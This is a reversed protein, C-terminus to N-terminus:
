PMLSLKGEVETIYEAEVAHSRMARLCGSYEESMFGKILGKVASSQKEDIITAEILNFIKGKARNFSNSVEHELGWYYNLEVTEKSM